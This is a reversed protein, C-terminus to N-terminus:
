GHVSVESIMLLDKRMIFQTDWTNQWLLPFGLLVFTLVTTSTFGLSHVQADTGLLSMMVQQAPAKLPSFPLGIVPILFCIPPWTRPIDIVHEMRGKGNKPPFLSLFSYNTFKKLSYCDYLPLKQIYYSLSQSTNRSLALPSHISSLASFYGCNLIYSGQLPLLPHNRPHLILRFHPLITTKYQTM